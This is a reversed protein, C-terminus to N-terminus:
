PKMEFRESRTREMGEATDTESEEIIQGEENLTPERMWHKRLEEYLNLLEHSSAVRFEITRAHTALQYEKIVTIDTILDAAQRIISDIMSEVNKPLPSRILASGPLESAQAAGTLLDSLPRIHYIRLLAPGNSVVNVELVHFTATVYEQISISQVNDEKGYYSRDESPFTIGFVSKNRIENKKVTLANAVRAVLIM